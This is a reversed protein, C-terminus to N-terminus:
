LSFPGVKMNLHPRKSFCHTKKACPGKWFYGQKKGQCRHCGTTTQANKEGDRQCAGAGKVGPIKGRDTSNQSSHCGTTTQANTEGGEAM